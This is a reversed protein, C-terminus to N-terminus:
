SARGMLSILVSCAQLVECSQFIWMGKSSRESLVEEPAKGAFSDHMNFGVGTKANAANDLAKIEGTASDYSYEANYILAGILNSADVNVKARANTVLGFRGRSQGSVACFADLFFRVRDMDSEFTSPIRRGDFANHPCGKRSFSALRLQEKQAALRLNAQKLKEGRALAAIDRRLIRASYADQIVHSWAVVLRVAPGATDKACQRYGTLHFLPCNYLTM